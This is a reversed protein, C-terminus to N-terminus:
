SLVNLIFEKREKLLDSLTFLTDLPAPFMYWVVLKNNIRYADSTIMGDPDIHGKWSKLRKDLQSDTEKNREFTEAYLSSISLGFFIVMLIKVVIFKM